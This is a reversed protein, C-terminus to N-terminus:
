LYQWSNHQKTCCHFTRLENTFDTVNCRTGNGASNEAFISVIYPIGAETPTPPSYLLVELLLIRIYINPSVYNVATWNVLYLVVGWMKLLLSEEPAMPQLNYIINCSSGM